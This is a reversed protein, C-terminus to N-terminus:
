ILFVSLVIIYKLIYYIVSYIVSTQALIEYIHGSASFPSTTQGPKETLCHFLSSFQSIALDLGPTLIQQSKQWQPIRYAALLM